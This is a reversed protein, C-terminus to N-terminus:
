KDYVDIYQELEKKNRVKYKSLNDLLMNNYIKQLYEYKIYRRRKFVLYPKRYFYKKNKLEYKSLSNGIVYKYLISTINHILLIYEM